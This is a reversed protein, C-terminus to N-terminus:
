HPCRPSRRVFSRLPRRAVRRAFRGISVGGGFAAAPYVVFVIFLVTSPILAVRPSRPTAAALRAVLPLTVRLCWDAGGGAALARAGVDRRRRRSVVHRSGAADPLSVLALGLLM